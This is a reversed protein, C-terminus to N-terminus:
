AIPPSGVHRDVGAPTITPPPEASGALRAELEGAPLPRSYYFGQGYECGLDALVSIQEPDDIGEAIARLGLNHALAIISRVIVQSEDRHTLTAVFSRDIKLTDGPFHHLVTLSSYGTGFDDLQISVGLALLERLLASMLEPREILTSETIELVLSSAPLGTEALAARVEEVLGPEGLQRTSVNVSITVDDEVLGRDRWRRLSRCAEYLMLSGLAGILGAEEAVPIFEGPPVDTRGEPWRALAEFGRIAGSRIDVIPQFFARLTKEEIAQRLEAELSIRGVVRAHMSADFVEHRAGGRRKADYMAIDANRILESAGAIGDSGSHSIGISAAVTMEHGDLDVPVAIAALVRRAVDVADAPSAIGDLLITFEDGGLRALTDDPRLVQEVRRSLEVLLRDGAAHSLSDNVLKFRDVDIFLVACQFGPDRELRGLCHSLRDMFLARNPLGTLSDHLAGYMLQQEANHRDTVDSLSGTMRAPTGTRDPSALGRSLVWRWQGDAHRIRHENEFYPSLGALHDYIEARLRGIDEPHVLDFWADPRGSIFRDGYGLLTKWRDSFHMSQEALDWDWIGDNTARVAVAYREESQRLDLMAKHQRLAYRITRELGPADITGKVLYDTVGLATAELDVQYDDQGTLLIV